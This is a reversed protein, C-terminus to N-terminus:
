GGTPNVVPQGPAAGGHGAKPLDRELDFDPDQSSSHCTSCMADIVCVPCSETLGVINDKGGGAAVHAEGPGHCSECGVGPVWADPKAAQAKDPLQAHCGLCEPDTDKGKAKLSHIAQAHRTPKWQAYEAAHCGQCKESGVLKGDPFAILPREGMGAELKRRESQFVAEEVDRNKGHAALPLGKEVSFGISHGKDHCAVCTPGYAAAPDKIPPRLKGHGGAIGHCQECGVHALEPTTKMDVYGTAAGYGTVHCGVCKPDERQGEEKLSYLAVAHFTLGWSRYADAHCTSCVLSGNYHDTSLVTLADGGAAKVATAEILKSYGPGIGAFSEVQRTKKKVIMFMPTARITNKRAFDASTDRYIKFPTSFSSTYQELEALSNRGAAIGITPIGRAQLTNALRTVEPGAEICHGCTASFYFIMVVQGPTADLLSSLPVLSFGDGMLPASVDLPQAEPGRPYFAAAATAATLLCLGLLLSALSRRLVM